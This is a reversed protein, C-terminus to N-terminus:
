SSCSPVHDTIMVPPTGPSCSQQDSGHIRNEARVVNIATYDPPPPVHRVVDWHRFWDAVQSLATLHHFATIPNWDGTMHRAPNRIALFTGTAYGRAGAQQDKVTVSNHDGPCRLRAKGPEPVKDSFAQNMLDTDYVDDRGIREQVFRNLSTAADNVAQRYKGAEWLPLAVESIVTDLLTLPLAPGGGTWQYSTMEEWGNLIDLARHLRPWAALHDSVRYASILRLDPALSRLIKNVAPLRENAAKLAAKRERSPWPQKQAREVQAWYDTLQRFAEERDM